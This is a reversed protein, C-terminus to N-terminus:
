PYMMCSTRKIQPAAFRAGRPGLSKTRKRHGASPDRAVQVERNKHSSFGSSTRMQPHTDMAIHSGFPDSQQEFCYADFKSDYQFDYFKASLRITVNLEFLAATTPNQIKCSWHRSTSAVVETM